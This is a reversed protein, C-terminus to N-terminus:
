NQRRISISLNNSRRNIVGLRKEIMRSPDQMTWSAKEGAPAKDNKLMEELVEVPGEPMPSEHELAKDGGSGERMFSCTTTFITKGKQRAQVTRTM